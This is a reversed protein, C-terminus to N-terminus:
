SVEAIMEVHFCACGPRFCLWGRRWIGGTRARAKAVDAVPFRQVKPMKVKGEEFWKAIQALGEGNRYNNVLHARPGLSVASLAMWWGLTVFSTKATM